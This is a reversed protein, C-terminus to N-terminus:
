DEPNVLAKTLRLPYNLIPVILMLYVIVVTVELHELDLMCGGIRFNFWNLCLLIGVFIM